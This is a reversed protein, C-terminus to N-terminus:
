KEKETKKRIKHFGLAYKGKSFGVPALVQWRVQELDAKQHGSKPCWDKDKFFPVM